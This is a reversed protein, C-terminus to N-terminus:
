LFAYSVQLGIDAHFLSVRRKVSNVDTDHVASLQYSLYPNLSLKKTPNWNVGPSLYMGDSPNNISTWRSDVPGTGTVGSTFHRLVGSAWEIYVDVKSSVSYTLSPDLVLYMDQRTSTPTAKGGKAAERTGADFREQPSMRNFYFNMYALGSFSLKGDFWTKVPNLLLRMKGHGMDSTGGANIGNITRPSTPAYLRVYGDLNFGYVDSHVLSNDSLTLYVDGPEWQRTTDDEDINQDFYVTGKLSVKKSLKAGVTFFHEFLLNTGTGDRNGSLAETHMQQAWLLYSAIGYKELFSQNAGATSSNTEEAHAAPAVVAVALAFMLLFKPTRM